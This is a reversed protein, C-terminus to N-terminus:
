NKVFYDRMFFGFAVTGLHNTWTLWDANNQYMFIGVAIFNCFLMVLLVYKM